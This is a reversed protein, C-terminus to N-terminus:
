RRTVSGAARARRPSEGAPVRGPATRFHGTTRDIPTALGRLVGSAFGALRTWRFSRQGLDVVPRALMWRAALQAAVALVTWHGRKVNKALTAGIGHLYGRIVDRGDDWSRFGGHIVTAGPTEAVFHGALLARITFDTEEASRLTTGAGLLEDFGHLEVWVSRRVAMSAGIGEARHKEFVTRAVFAERRQYSPIFGAARDHPAAQVSGFVVGIRPDNALPATLESLWAPTVTCDDDTFALLEASTAAAATNRGVSLGRSSGLCRLRPDSVAQDLLTAARQDDNQDVVYLEFEPQSGAIISRVTEVVRGGRGLTCVVVAVRPSHAM